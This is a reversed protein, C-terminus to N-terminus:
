WKMMEELPFYLAIVPDKSRQQATTGAAPIPVRM